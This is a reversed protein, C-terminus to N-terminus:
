RCGDRALDALDVLHRSAAAARLASARLAIDSPARRFAKNPAEHRQQAVGGEGIAALMVTERGFIRDLDAEARDAEGRLGDIEAQAARQEGALARRLHLGAQRARDGDGVQRRENAAQHRLALEPQMDREIRHRDALM